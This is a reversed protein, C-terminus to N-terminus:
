RGRVSPIPSPGLAASMRQRPQPYRAPRDLRDLETGLPLVVFGGKKDREVTTEIYQAVRYTTNSEHVLHM